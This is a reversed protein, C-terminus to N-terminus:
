LTEKRGLSSEDISRALYAILTDIVPTNLYHLQIIISLQGEIGKSMKYYVTNDTRETKLKVCINRGHM